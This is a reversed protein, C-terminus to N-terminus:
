TICYTFISYKFNKFFLAQIKISKLILYGVFNGIHFVVGGENKTKPLGGM